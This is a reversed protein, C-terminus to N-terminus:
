PSGVFFIGAAPFLVATKLTKYIPGSNRPIKGHVMEAEAADIRYYYLVTARTPSGM